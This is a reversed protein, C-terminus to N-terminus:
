RAGIAPCGDARYTTAVAGASRRTTTLADGSSGARKVRAIAVPYGCQIPATGSNGMRAAARM